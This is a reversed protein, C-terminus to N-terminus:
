KLASLLNLQTPLRPCATETPTEEGEPLLGPQQPLSSDQFTHCCDGTHYCRGHTFLEIVLRSCGELSHVAEIQTVDLELRLTDM